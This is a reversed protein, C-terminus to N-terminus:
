ILSEYKSVEAMIDSKLGVVDGIIILLPTKYKRPLNAIDNLNSIEEKQEPNSINYMLLVPTLADWGQYIAKQAIKQIHMAGMYIVITGTQPIHINKDSHGTIFTVASSIGRHTLPIQSAASAAMAATIGPVVEVQIGNQKLFEIEEGGHAFLMPDGGKLRVVNKGALAADLMLKNIIDQEISHKKRRKGVYVQEAPFQHLFEKNLLDDYFIIDCTQLLKFGKITLLDPDGPGFGVLWV